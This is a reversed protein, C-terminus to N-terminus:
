CGGQSPGTGLLNDRNNGVVAIRSLVIALYAQPLGDSGGVKGEHQFFHAHVSDNAQIQVAVLNTAEKRRLNGHLYTALDNPDKVYQM